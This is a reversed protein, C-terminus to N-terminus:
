KVERPELDTWESANPWVMEPSIEEFRDGQAYMRWMDESEEGDGHVEFTVFPFASSLQMLEAQFGYWNLSTGNGELLGVMSSDTFHKRAWEVVEDPVPEPRVLERYTSYGM